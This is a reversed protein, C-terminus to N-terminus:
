ELNEVFTKIKDWWGLIQFSVIFTSICVVFLTGIGVTRFAWSFDLMAWLLAFLSVYSIIGLTIAKGRKAMM